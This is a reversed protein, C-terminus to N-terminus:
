PHRKILVVQKVKIRQHDLIIVKQNRESMYGGQLISLTDSKFCELLITDKSLFRWRGRCTSKGEYVQETLLFIHNRDISLSYDFDKGHNYYYGGLYKTSSCSTLLLMLIYLHTKKM